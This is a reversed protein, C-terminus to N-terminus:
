WAMAESSGSKRCMEMAIALSVGAVMSDCLWVASCQVMVRDWVTMGNRLM